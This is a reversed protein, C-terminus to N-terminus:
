ECFDGKMEDSAVPPPLRVPKLVVPPAITTM